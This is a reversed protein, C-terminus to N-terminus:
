RLDDKYFKLGNKGVPCIRGNKKFYYVIYSQYKEDLSRASDYGEFSDYEPKVWCSQYDNHNHEVAFIGINKNLTLILIRPNKSTNIADYTIPTVLNQSKIDLIGWKKKKRVLAIQSNYYNEGDTLLKIEDYEADIEKSPQNKFYLKLGYKKNKEVLNAEQLKSRDTSYFRFVENKSESLSIIKIDSIGSPVTAYISGQRENKEFFDAYNMEFNAIDFTNTCLTYTKGKKAYLRYKEFEQKKEYFDEYDLYDIKEYEAELIWKHFLVNYLGWKNNIKFAYIGHHFDRFEQINSLITTQTIDKLEWLNSTNQKTIFNSKKGLRLTSCAHIQDYELDLILKGNIDSYGVKKNNFVYYDTDQSHLPNRDISDYKPLLIEKGLSDIIGVKNNKYVFWRFNYEQISVSDYKPKVMVNANQDAYGWLKGERYPLRFNQASLTTTILLLSPLIKSYLNM